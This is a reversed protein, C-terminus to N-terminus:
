GEQNDAEAENTNYDATKNDPSWLTLNDRLLQMILTSDKYQNSNLADLDNMASDFAEKALDCAEQKKDLIEYKAVSYNLALGLRTSNTAALTQANEWASNYHKNCATKDSEEDKVEALYRYYDGIMKQVFVQNEVKKLDRDKKEKNMEDKLWDTYLLNNKLLNIVEDCYVQLEKELHKKYQNEGWKEKETASRETNTKSDRKPEESISILQRRSQRIAGTLNKYAVSLLSREDQTVSWKDEKVRLEILKKMAKRMTEYDQAIEATNAIPLLEDAKTASQILKAVEGAM